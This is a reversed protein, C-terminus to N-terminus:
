ETPEDSDESHCCDKCIDYASAELCDILTDGINTDAGFEVPVEVCITQAITFSCTDNYNGADPLACASHVVPHGCCKVRIEGTHAYPTVTVPVTVNIKQHGTAPCTQTIYESM